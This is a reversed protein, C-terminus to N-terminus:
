ENEFDEFYDDIKLLEDIIKDRQISKIAIEDQFLKKLGRNRVYDSMYISLIDKDEDYHYGLRVIGGNKNNYMDLHYSIKKLLKPLDEDRMEYNIEIIKYVEKLVGYYYKFKSGKDIFM